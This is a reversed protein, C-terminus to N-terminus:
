KAIELVKIDTEIVDGMHQVPQLHQPKDPHNRGTLKEWREIGALRDREAFSMPQNAPAAVPLPGTHLTQATQAADQRTRKLTGLAYAFGKGKGVATRAAGEFEAVSAGANLLMQLDPHGPNTDSVGVAKMVLCVKAPETVRATHTNLGDEDKAVLTPIGIGIGTGTGTGTDDSGHSEPTRGTDTGHSLNPSGASMKARYAAKRTKEKSKHELMELVREVITDQYLRGDEALWWGRLLIAKVKAFAKVTMGLRAAILMDDSPMSGCPKQQWATAWLMLLWPRVDPAALAWTDSQM